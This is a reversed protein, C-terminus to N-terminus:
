FFTGLLQLTLFTLIKLLYFSEYRPGGPRGEDISIRMDRGDFTRGNLADLADQM